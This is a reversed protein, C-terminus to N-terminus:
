LRHRCLKGHEMSQGGSAVNALLMSTASAQSGTLQLGARSTQCAGGGGGQPKGTPEIFFGQAQRQLRRGGTLVTAGEARGAEIYGM